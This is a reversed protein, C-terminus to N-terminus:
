KDDRRGSGGWGMDRRARPRFEGGGESNGAQGPAATARTAAAARSLFSRQGGRDERPRFGGERNGQYGGSGGSREGRDERPRFGGGKM